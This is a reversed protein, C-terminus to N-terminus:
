APITTAPARKRTVLTTIAAVSRFTDINLEDNDVEIGFESEVFTLLQMAFLSNVFGSRFIDEDDRLARLRGATTIFDRVKTRIADDCLM